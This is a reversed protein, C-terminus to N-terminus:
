SKYDRVNNEGLKNLYYSKYFNCYIVDQKTVYGGGGTTSSCKKVDCTDNELRYYPCNFCNFEM